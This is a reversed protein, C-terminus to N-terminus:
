MSKAPYVMIKTRFRLLIEHTAGALVGSVLPGTRHGNKTLFDAPGVPTM